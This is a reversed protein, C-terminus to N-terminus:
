KEEPPKIIGDKVAGAHFIGHWEDMHWHMNRLENLIMLQTAEARPMHHVAAFGDVAELTNSMYEFQNQPHEVKPKELIKSSM